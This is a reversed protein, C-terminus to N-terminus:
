VPEAWGSATFPTVWVYLKRASGQSLSKHIRGALADFHAKAAIADQPRGIDDVPWNNGSICVQLETDAGSMSARVDIPMVLVSVSDPKIQSKTLGHVEKAAVDRALRAFQQRESDSIEIFHAINVQAM